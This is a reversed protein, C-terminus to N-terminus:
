KKIHRIPQRKPVAVFNGRFRVGVSKAKRWAVECAIAADERTLILLFSKPLASASDVVSSKDLKLDIQAGTSSLDRVVCSLAGHMGDSQIVGPLISTRRQAFRREDKLKEAFAAAPGKAVQAVRDNLTKTAM